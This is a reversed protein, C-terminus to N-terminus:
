RTSLRVMRIGMGLNTDDEDEKRERCHESRGQDVSWRDFAFLGQDFFAGVFSLVGPLLDTRHPFRAGLREGLHTEILPRRLQLLDTGGPGEKLVKASSSKGKHHKLHLRDGVVGNSFHVFDNLTELSGLCAQSYGIIM